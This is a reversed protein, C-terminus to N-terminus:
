FLRNKLINNLREKRAKRLSKIQEKRKWYDHGVYKVLWKCQKSLCGKQKLQNQTLCCRHLKCWGVAQTKRIWSHYAGEIKRKTSM